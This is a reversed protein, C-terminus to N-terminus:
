GLCVTEGYEAGNNILWDRIAMEYEEWFYACEEVKFYIISNSCIFLRNIQEEYEDLDHILQDADFHKYTKYEM